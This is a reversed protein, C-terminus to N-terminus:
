KLSVASNSLRDEHYGFAFCYTEVFIIRQNWIFRLTVEVSTRATLHSSYLAMWQLINTSFFFEMAKTQWRVIGVSRSGSIPSTLPLNKRVTDRPWRLPDGLRYERIELGSSSSKRGLLEETISVLSSSRLFDPLAPFRVQSWQIQIWSSLGSPWLKM